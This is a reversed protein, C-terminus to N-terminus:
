RHRSGMNQSFDEASEFYFDYYGKGLPVMKWVATTKWLLGLKTSLDRALYPKDGKNLILRARLAHKCEEVGRHYEDQGIKISLADGKICPTPLPSDNDVNRCALAAVFSKPPVIPAQVMASTVTDSVCPWPCTYAM